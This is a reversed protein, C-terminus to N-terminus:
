KPNLNPIYKRNIIIDSLRTPLPIKVGFRECCQVHFERKMWRKWLLTTEKGWYQPMPHEKTEYYDIM